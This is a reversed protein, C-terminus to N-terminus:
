VKSQTGSYAVTAAPLRQLQPQATRGKSPLTTPRIFSSNNPKPPLLPFLSLLFSPRKDVSSESEGERERNERRESDSLPSRVLLVLLGESKTMLFLLRHCFTISWPLLFLFALEVCGLATFRSVAVTALRPGPKSKRPHATSPRPSKTERVTSGWTRGPSIEMESIELSWLELFSLLFGMQFQAPIAAMSTM